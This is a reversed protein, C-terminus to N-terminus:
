RNTKNKIRNKTEKIRKREQAKRNKEDHRHIRSYVYDKDLLNKSLRKMGLAAPFLMLLSLSTGVINFYVNLAFDEFGQGMAAFIITYLLVFLSALHCVSPIIAATKKGIFHVTITILMIVACNFCALYTFLNFADRINGYLEANDISNAHAYFVIFSVILSVTGIISAASLAKAFILTKKSNTSFIQLYLTYIFSLSIILTFVGAM